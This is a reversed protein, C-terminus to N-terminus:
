FYVLQLVDGFFQLKM